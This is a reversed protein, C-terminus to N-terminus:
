RCITIIKSRKWNPNRQKTKRAQNSHQIFTSATSLGQRTGSRLSFLKMKESNHFISATSKNYIARIDQTFNRGSRNKSLIKITFSCQTKDFVKETHISIIM